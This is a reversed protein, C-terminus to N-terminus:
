KNDKPLCHVHKFNDKILARYLSLRKEVELKIIPHAIGLKGQVSQSKKNNSNM